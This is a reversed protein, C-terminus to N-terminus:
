GPSAQQALLREAEKRVAPRSSGLQRRAFDIVPQRDRLLPLIEGLTKLAHGCVVRTCEPSPAGRSLYRANEVTLIERAIRDALAPRARAITAAGGVTNAAAIMSPGRLFAFYRDLLAEIRGQGDVAALNAVMVIAGWRLFSNASDLLGALVDFHPYLLEPRRQSLLRLAKESRYRVPAKGASLGALLQPVLGPDASARRVLAEPDSESGAIPGAMPEPAKGEM